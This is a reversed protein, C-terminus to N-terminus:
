NQVVGKEINLVVENNLVKKAWFLSKEWRKNFEKIKWFKYKYYKYFTFFKFGLLQNKTSYLLYRHLTVPGPLPVISSDQYWPYIKTADFRWGGMPAKLHNMYDQDTFIIRKGKDHVSYNYEQDDSGMGEIQLNFLELDKNSFLTSCGSVMQSLKIKINGKINNSGFSIIDSNTFELKSILNNLLNKQNNIRIDDDFMIIYDADSANLGINRANCLGLKDLLIHKLNFNWEKSLTRKLLTEKQGPLLQEVIYFNRIGLDQKEIDILTQYIYDPRGLTPIFADVTYNIANKNKPISWLLTDYKIEQYNNNIIYKLPLIVKREFMLKTISYYFLWKRKKTYNLFTLYESETLGKISGKKITDTNIVRVIGGLRYAYYSLVAVQTKYNLPYAYKKLSNLLKKTIFGGNIRSRWTDYEKLNSKSFKNFFVNTSELYESNDLFLHNGYTVMEQMKDSINDKILLEVDKIEEKFYCWGVYDLQNSLTFLADTFTDFFKDIFVWKKLEESFYIVGIKM